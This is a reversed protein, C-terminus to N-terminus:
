KQMKSIQKGELNIKTIRAKPTIPWRSRIKNNGRAVQNMMSLKEYLFGM